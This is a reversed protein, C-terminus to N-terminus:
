ANPEAEARARELGDLILDLGFEFESDYDYGGAQAFQTAAEVLYPYAAMDPVNQRQRGM